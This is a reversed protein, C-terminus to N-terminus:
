ESTEKFNSALLTNLRNKLTFKVVCLTFSIKKVSGLSTVQQAGTRTNNLVKVYFIGDRLYKEVMQKSNYTGDFNHCHADAFPPLVFGDALDIVEDVVRPKDETFFGNVSYLTRHRFAKGDFWQGNIFEYAQGRPLEPKAQLFALGGPLNVLSLTLVMTLILWYRPHRRPNLTSTKM